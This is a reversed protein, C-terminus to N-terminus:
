LWCDVYLVEKCLENFSMVSWVDVFVGYDNEFLEVVVEVEWLILGCGFLQVCMKKWGGKKFCYIGKCIGEEVGEFMLLYYYNENFMIIYYFVSEQDQVMCWLGDQFIVVFEYVYILDYVVCNFVMLVILYSYGDQYQFGEGNFMM